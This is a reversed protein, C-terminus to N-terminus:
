INNQKQKKQLKKVYARYKKPSLTIIKTGKNNNKIHDLFLGGNKEQEELSNILYASSISRARIKMAEKDFEKRKSEDSKYEKGVKKQPDAKKLMYYDIASFLVIEENDRNHKIMQYLTSIGNEDWRELEELTYNSYQRIYVIM